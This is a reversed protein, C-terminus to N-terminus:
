EKELIKKLREELRGIIAKEAAQLPEDLEIKALTKTGTPNFGASLELSNLSKGSYIWARTKSNINEFILAIAKAAPVNAILEDIVENLDSEKSQTKEFDAQSLISWILQDGSSSQLRALVRGWLKLVNLTRSRFLKNIIEEKRAGLAILDSAAELAQPSIIQSRFNRTKSIIGALLCTAIDENLLKQDLSKLLPFLVQSVSVATLEILNIQGFSENASDNDINIVPKKYFLDPNDEYIKGLSELDPAGITIILDYKYDCNCASVENGTFQGGRPTIIFDLRGDEMIYKVEGVKTQSVDLSVILKQLGDPAGLIESFGPLFELGKKEELNEIVLDAKKGMRGLFLFVALASALCDGNKDGPAILLIEEAKKIQEAAQDKVNLM